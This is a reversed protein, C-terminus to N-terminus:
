DREQTLEFAVFGAFRYLYLAVAVPRKPGRWRLAVALFALLYVQDLYKDFAQYDRVGGLDLLDMMFLDSQGVAIARLRRWFPWRLVPLSGLVRVPAILWMEDTM